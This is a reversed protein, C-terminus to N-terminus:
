PVAGTIVDVEFTNELYAPDLTAYRVLRDADIVAYGVPSGGDVPTAIGIASALAAGAAGVRVVLDVGDDGVAARWADYAPGTPPTREFLVLVTRGGLSVGDVEPALRPGALLLGDRQDAPDPDDLPGPPRVVLVMVLTLVVAVVAFVAVPLWWRLPPSAGPLRGLVVDVPDCCCRATEASQTATLTSM